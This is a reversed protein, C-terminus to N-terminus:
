EKTLVLNAPILFDSFDIPTGDPCNGWIETITNTRTWVLQKEGGINILYELQLKGGKRRECSTLSPEYYYINKITNVSDIDYGKLGFEEATNYKEVGALKYETRINILDDFDDDTHFDGIDRTVYLHKTIIIRLYHTGDDFVWTGVFKDLLNNTDKFYYTGTTIALEPLNYKDEINIVTEQSYSSFIISFLTVLTYINKLKM